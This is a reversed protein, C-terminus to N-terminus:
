GAFESALRFSKRYRVNAMTVESSLRASDESSIRDAPQCTAFVFLRVPLWELPREISSIGCGDFCRGRGDRGALESAIM